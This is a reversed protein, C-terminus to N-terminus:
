MVVGHAPKCNVSQLARRATPDYEVGYPPDTVMLHPKFGNLAKDVAGVTTCGGFVLRHKGLLWVDGLESVPVAPEEPVEDPDTLGANKDALLTGLEDLSFGILGLDFDLGKLEDLEIKLLDRDWAAALTLQND